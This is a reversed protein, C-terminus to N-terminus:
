TLQDYNGKRLPICGELFDLLPSNPIHSHHIFPPHQETHHMFMHPERFDQGLTDRHLIQTYRCATSAYSASPNACAQASKSRMVGSSAQFVLMSTLTRLTDHPHVKSACSGIHIITVGNSQFTVIYRTFTKQNNRKYTAAITQLNFSM